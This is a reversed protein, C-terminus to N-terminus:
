EYQPCVIGVKYKTAAEEYTSLLDEVYGPRIQSNQDFTIIWRFGQSIAYRFGINLAAAIGLNKDNRIVTCTDIRELDGLIKEARSNPTNDVVVVSGIQEKLIAINQVIEAPPNYSTLVGCVQSNGMTHM